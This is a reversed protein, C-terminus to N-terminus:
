RKRRDPKDYTVNGARWNLFVHVDYDSMFFWHFGDPMPCYGFVLDPFLKGFADPHVVVSRPSCHEVKYRRRMSLLMFTNDRNTM